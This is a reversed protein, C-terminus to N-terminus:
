VNNEELIINKLLDYIWATIKIKNNRLEEKDKDDLFNNIKIKTKDDINDKGLAKIAQVAILNKYRLGNIEKFTAHKFKIPIKGILYDKYPGNSIYIYKNPIQTSIGIINLAYNASPIISLNYQRAIAHAVENIDPPKIFGLLNDKTSLYYIGRKARLIVGDDELTELAKSVNKYTGIDLFDSATFAKFSSNLIREFILNKTSM